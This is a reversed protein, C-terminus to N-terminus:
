ILLCLKQVKIIIYLFWKRILTITRALYIINRNTIKFIRQKEMAAFHNPSFFYIIYWIIIENLFNLLLYFYLNINKFKDFDDYFNKFEKTNCFDNKNDDELFGMKCDHIILNIIHFLIIFIFLFVSTCFCLSLVNGKSKNLYVAGIVINCSIFLNGIFVKFSGKYKEMEGLIFGSINIILILIFIAIISVYHHKYINIYKILKNSLIIIIIIRLLFIISILSGGKEKYAKTTKIYAYYIHSIVYLLSSIFLWKILESKKNSKEKNTLNNIKQKESLYEGEEIKTSTGFIEDSFLYNKKGTIKQKILYIAIIVGNFFYSLFDIFLQFFFNSPNEKFSKSANKLLSIILILLYLLWKKNVEGLSIFCKKGM